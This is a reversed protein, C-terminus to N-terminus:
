SAGRRSPPSTPASDPISIVRRRDPEPDSKVPLAEAEPDVGRPFWISIEVARPLRELTLSDFSEVWRRGDLYRFKVRAPREGIPQWAATAAPKWEGAAAELGRESSFRFRSWRLDALSPAAGDRRAALGRSLVLLESSSGKVGPGWETTGVMTTLLDGELREIIASGLVDNAAATRLRERGDALDRVFWSMAALLAALLALSVMVEILTFGRCPTRGRDGRWSYQRSRM